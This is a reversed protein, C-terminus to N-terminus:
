QLALHWLWNNFHELLTPNREAESRSVLFGDVEVLGRPGPDSLPDYRDAQQQSDPKKSQRQFFRECAAELAPDIKKM